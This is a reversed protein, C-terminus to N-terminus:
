FVEEVFIDDDKQKDDTAVLLKSCAGICFMPTDRAPM